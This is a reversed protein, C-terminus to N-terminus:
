AYIPAANDLATELDTDSAVGYFNKAMYIVTPLKELEAKLITELAKMTAPKKVAPGLAKNFDGFMEFSYSGDEKLNIATAFTSISGSSRKMTSIILGTLGKPLGAVPVYIEAINGYYNKYLAIENPVMKKFM